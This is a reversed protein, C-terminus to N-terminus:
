RLSRRPISWVASVSVGRLRRGVLRRHPEDGDLYYGPCIIPTTAARM